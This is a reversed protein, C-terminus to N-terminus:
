DTPRSATAPSIPMSGFFATSAISAVWITESCLATLIARSDGLRQPAQVEVVGGATASRRRAPRSKRAPGCCAGDSRLREARRDPRVPPRRPSSTLHRRLPFPALPGKLAGMTPGAARHARRGSRLVPESVTQFGGRRAGTALLDVGHQADGPLRDAVRPVSGCCPRRARPWSRGPFGRKLGHNDRADQGPPPLGMCKM